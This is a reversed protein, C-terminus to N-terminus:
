SESYNVVTPAKHKPAGPLRRAYLLPVRELLAARDFIRTGPM